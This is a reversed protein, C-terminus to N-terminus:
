QSQTHSLWVGRGKQPTFAKIGTMRGAAPAPVEMNCRRACLIKIRCVTGSCKDRLPSLPSKVTGFNLWCMKHERGGAQAYLLSISFSFLVCAFCVPLGNCFFEGWFCRTEDTELRRWLSQAIGAEPSRRGGGGMAKAQWKWGEVGRNRGSELCETRSVTWFVKWSFTRWGDARKSGKLRSIMLNFNTHHGGKLKCLIQHGCSFVSCFFMWQFYILLILSAKKEFRDLRVPLNRSM